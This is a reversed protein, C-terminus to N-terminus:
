TMGEVSLVAEFYEKPPAPAEDAPAGSSRVAGAALVLALLISRLAIM